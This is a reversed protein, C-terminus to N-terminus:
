ETKNVLKTIIELISDNVANSVETSAVVVSVSEDSKLFKDVKQLTKFPVRALFQEGIEQVLGTLDTDQVQAIIEDVPTDSGNLDHVGVLLTSVANFAFGQFFEKQVKTLKVPTVETPVVDIVESM